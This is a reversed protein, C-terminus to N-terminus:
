ARFKRKLMGLGVLGGGLLLLTGPEPVSNSPQSMRTQAPNSSGGSFGDYYGVQLPLDSNFPADLIFNFAWTFSGGDLRVGLALDGLSAGEVATTQYLGSWTDNAFKENGFEALNINAGSNMISWGSTSTSTITAATGDDMKFQFWNIYWPTAYTATDVTFTASYTHLSPNVSTINLTYESGPVGSSIDTWTYTAALGVAPLALLLLAVVLAKRM